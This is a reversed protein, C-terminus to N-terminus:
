RVEEIVCHPNAAVLVISIEFLEAKNIIKM